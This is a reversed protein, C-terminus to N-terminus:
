REQLLRSRRAYPSDCPFCHVEEMSNQTLRAISLISLQAKTNTFNCAIMRCAGPDRNQKGFASHIRHAHSFCATILFLMFTEYAINMCCLQYCSAGIHARSYLNTQRNGTKLNSANEIRWKM